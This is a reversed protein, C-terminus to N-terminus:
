KLFVEELTTLSLGFSSIKLAELNSELDNFIKSFMYVKDEPLIFTLETGINTEVTIGPIYKNFFKAVAQPNCLANKVLILRYGMGFRKKLYFSTGVTKLEGDAMIAIRDGLVDAEDMFHTTLLITRGKKEQILLDWLSRRAAPDMGSSPEDCMVIKSNGCLAIGISLKRKMGGSLTSSQANMKPELGLLNVYKKIQDEIEKKDKIGKLKAFFIIHEKVTLESFLVNHQPCLGLSGRISDMDTRIDHGNIFVTGSTPPFLGTLMGM